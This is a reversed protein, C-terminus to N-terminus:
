IYDIINPDVGRALLATKFRALGRRAEHLLNKSSNCRATYEKNWKRKGSFDADRLGFYTYSVHSSASDWTVDIHFNETGGFLKVINWAHYVSSGSTQGCVVDCAVGGQDMLRKFAEAFGQCVCQKKILAGYASQLYSTELESADLKRTYDITYALYNHALYAKTAATMGPLFLLKAVREVEADVENEMIALQVRGIRYDFIFEYVLLPSMMIRSQRLRASVLHPYFAFSSDVIKRYVKEVSLTPSAFFVAGKKYNGICQCLISHIEAKTTVVHIDGQPFSTNRYQFCITMRTGENRPYVCEYSSLYYAIKINKRVIDQILDSYYETTNIVIRPKFNQIARLVKAEIDM